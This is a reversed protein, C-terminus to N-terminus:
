RIPSCPTPEAIMLKMMLPAMAHAIYRGIAATGIQPSLLIAPSVKEVAKRRGNKTQRMTVGSVCRFTRLPSIGASQQRRTECGTRPRSGLEAIRRASTKPMKQAILTAENVTKARPASPILSIASKGNRVKLDM